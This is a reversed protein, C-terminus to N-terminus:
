EGLDPCAADVAVGEAECATELSECTQSGLCALYSTLPEACGAIGLAPDVYPAYYGICDEVTYEPDAYCDTVLTCADRIAQELAARQSSSGGGDATGSDVGSDVVAGADVGGADVGGSDSPIMSADRAADVGADVSPRDDDGCGGVLSAVSAGGVVWRKFSSASM